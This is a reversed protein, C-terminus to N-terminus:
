LSGTIPPRNECNQLRTRIQQLDTNARNLRESTELNKNISIDYTNRLSVIRDYNILIENYLNNNESDTRFEEIAARLQAMKKDRETKVQGKLRANSGANEYAGDLEDLKVLHKNIEEVKYLLKREDTLQHQQNSNAASRMNLPVKSNMYVALGVLLISVAYLSFFKWFAQTRERSNVPKM